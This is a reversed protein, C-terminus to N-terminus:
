ADVYLQRHVELKTTRCRHECQRKKERAEKVDKIYWLCPRARRRVSNMNTAHKKLSKPFSEYDSVIEQINEPHRQLFQQCQDRRNSRQIHMLQTPPLSVDFLSSSGCVKFLVLLLCFLQIHLHCPMSTLVSYLLIYFM